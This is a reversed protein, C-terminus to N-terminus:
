KDNNKKPSSNFPWIKELPRTGDELLDGFEARSPHKEHLFYFGTLYARVEDNPLFVLQVSFLDDKTYPAIKIQKSFTKTPWEGSKYNYFCEYISNICDYREWEVTITHESQYVRPVSACCVSGGGQNSPSDGVWESNIWANIIGYDTFNYLEVDPYITPDKACANLSFLILLGSLVRNLKSRKM